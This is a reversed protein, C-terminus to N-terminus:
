LLKVTSTFCQCQLLGLVQPWALLPSIVFSLPSLSDLFTSLDKFVMASLVLFYCLPWKIIQLFIVKISWNRVKFFFFFPVVESQMILTVARYRFLKPSNKLFYFDMTLSAEILSICIFAVHATFAKEAYLM